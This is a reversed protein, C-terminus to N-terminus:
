AQEIMTSLHSVITEFLKTGPTPFGEDMYSLLVKNKHTMFGASGINTYSNTNTVVRYLTAINENSETDMLVHLKYQVKRYEIDVFHSSM